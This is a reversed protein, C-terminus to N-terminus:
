WKKFELNCARKYQLFPQKLNQVIANFEEHRLKAVYSGQEEVVPIEIEVFSNDVSYFQIATQADDIFGIFNNEHSVINACLRKLESDNVPIANDSDINEENQYTCYYVSRYVPNLQKGYATEIQDISIQKADQEYYDNAWETFQGMNFHIMGLLWGSGDDEDNFSVPGSQWEKDGDLLWCCFTVDDKMLSEDDLLSMIEKPVGEYMGPWFTYEKQAHPSVESEHDFGKILVNNKYFLVVFDDGSGNTFTALEVGEQWSPDFGYCRLGEDENLMVELDATAKLSQRLHSSTVQKLYTNKHQTM